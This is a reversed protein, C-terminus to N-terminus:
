GCALEDIAEAPLEASLTTEHKRLGERVGPALRAQPRDLLEGLPDVARQSKAADRGQEHRQAVQEVRRVSAVLGGVNALEQVLIGRVEIEVLTVQELGVTEDVHCALHHADAADARAGPHEQEDTAVALVPVHRESSPVM